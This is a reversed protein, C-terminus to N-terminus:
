RESGESVLQGVLAMADILRLLLKETTHGNLCGYVISRGKDDNSL